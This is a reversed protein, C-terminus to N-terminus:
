RTQLDHYIDQAMLAENYENDDMPEPKAVPYPNIGHQILVLEMSHVRDLAPPTNYFALELKKKLDFSDVSSYIALLERWRQNESETEEHM